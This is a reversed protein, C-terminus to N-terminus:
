LVGLIFTYEGSEFQNRFELEIALSLKLIKFSYFYRSIAEIAITKYGHNSM